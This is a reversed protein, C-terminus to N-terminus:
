YMCKHINFNIGISCHIRYAKLNPKNGLICEKKEVLM